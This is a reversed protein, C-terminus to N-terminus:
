GRRPLESPAADSFSIEGAAAALAVLHSRTRAQRRTMANRVHTRVTHSSLFLQAAIEEGSLGQALLAVIERERATLVPRDDPEAAGDLRSDRPSRGAAVDRISALLEAAGGSKSATGDAQEVSEPSVAAGGTYLLVRMGRSRAQPILTLGDEGRLDVDLVVVDAERRQILREGEALTEATGAVEMGERRLLLALGRAMAAHDEVVLVKLAPEDAEGAVDAAPLTATDPYLSRVQEIQPLVALFASLIRGDFQTGDGGRMIDLAAPVTMAPRYVRDNTLADFVDAVATVRGSLPIEHAALSRPYGKGDVREHHTLAITAALDLVADGSGSLIQHGIEAHREILTREEPTLKGPKCLVADPVGIKGIDHMASAARLTACDAPSLGLERGILACSRSVREVHEATEEDRFRGARTLCDLVEEALRHHGVDDAGVEHQRQWQSSRTREARRRLARTAAVALQEGSFPKTLYDDVGDALAAQAVDDSCTGSMLISATGPQRRALHDVLDAGTGDGLNLDVLVLDYSSSAVHERAEALTTTTVSEIEQAELLRATMRCVQPDDDVVLAVLSRGSPSFHRGVAM